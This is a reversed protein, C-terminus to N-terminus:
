QSRMAGKNLVSNACALMQYNDIDELRIQKQVPNIGVRQVTLM